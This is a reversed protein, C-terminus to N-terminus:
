TEAPGRGNTPMVVRVVKATMEVERRELFDGNMKGLIENAKVRDSMPAPVEVPEGNADLKTSTIEGRMLASLWAEREERDAVAARTRPRRAKEVAAVVKANRLMRSATVNLTADDGSYGALRAAATANGLAKGLYAEVFRRQKETLDDM